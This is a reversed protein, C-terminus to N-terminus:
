INTFFVHKYEKARDSEKRFDRNDAVLILTLNKKTLKPFHIDALKEIVFEITTESEVFDDIFYIQPLSSLRMYEPSGISMQNQKVYEIKNGHTEENEKRVYYMSTKIEYNTYLQASVLTALAVGSMGSYILIPDRGVADEEIFSAAKNAYDLGASAHMTEVVYHSSM